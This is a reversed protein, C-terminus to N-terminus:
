SGSPRKPLKRTTPFTVVRATASSKPRAKSSQRRAMTAELRPRKQWAPQEKPPEQILGYKRAAQILSRWNEELERQSFEVEFEYYDRLLTLDNTKNDFSWDGMVYWVRILAAPVKMQNTRWLGYAYGLIQPMWYWQREEISSKSSTKTAKWEELPWESDPNVWDPSMWVGDYQFPEPRHGAYPENALRHRRALAHSVIEEWTHGADIRMMDLPSDPNFKKDREFMLKKIIDSLHLGPARDGGTNSLVLDNQERKSVKM